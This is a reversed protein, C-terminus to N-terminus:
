LQARVAAFAQHQRCTGAFRCRGGRPVRKRAREGDRSPAHPRLLVGDRLRCPVDQQCIINEEPEYSRPNLPPCYNFRHVVEGRARAEEVEELSKGPVGKRYWLELKDGDFDRLIRKYEPTQELIEYDM